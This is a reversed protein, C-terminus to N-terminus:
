LVPGSFFSFVWFALSWVAFAGAYFWRLNFRDALMGAPLQMLAYSWFFASLLVGKAAPGLHLEVGIIPLAISVIARDFYNIFGAASLLAAISWAPTPSVPRMPLWGITDRGHGSATSREVSYSVPM